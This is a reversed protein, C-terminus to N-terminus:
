RLNTTSIESELDVWSHCGAFQPLVPLTTPQPLQDVRVLLAFLGPTRYHFRQVVTKESWIHEANLLSLTSEERPQFVDQVTVLYRLDIRDDNPQQFQPDSLLAQGRENLVDTQQHFKTPYLWFERHSGQFGGSLEQIGGKRLILSQEGNGLAACVVSWEKFAMRITSNM